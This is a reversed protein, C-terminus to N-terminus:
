LISDIGLLLIENESNNSGTIVRDLLVCRVVWNTIKSKRRSLWEIIHPVKRKGHLDEECFCKNVLVFKQKLIISHNLLFFLFHKLYKKSNITPYFAKLVM